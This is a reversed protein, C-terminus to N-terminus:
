AIVMGSEEQAVMEKKHQLNTVIPCKNGTRSWVTNYSEKERENKSEKQIIKVFRNMIIGLFASYFVLLPLISIIAQNGADPYNEM